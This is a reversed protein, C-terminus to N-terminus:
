INELSVLGVGEDKSLVHNKNMWLCKQWQEDDSVAM